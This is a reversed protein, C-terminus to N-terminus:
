GTSSFTERLPRGMPRSSCGSPLRSTGFSIHGRLLMGNAQAFDAISDSFLFQFASETPHVSSFKMENAPTVSSFHKLLLDRHTRISRASVASGIPFFGEYAKCLSVIEGAM